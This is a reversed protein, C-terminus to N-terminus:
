FFVPSFKRKLTYQGSTIKHNDSDYGSWIGRLINIKRNECEEIKLFFNGTGPDHANSSWYRGHFHTGESIEGKLEWNKKDFETSGKVNYGSQILRIPAKKWKTKGASDDDEYFSIFEGTISQKAEVILKRIKNSLAKAGIALGGGIVVWLFNALFGELIAKISVEPLFDVM